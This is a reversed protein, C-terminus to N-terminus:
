LQESRDCEFAQQWRPPHSVCHIACKQVIKGWLRELRQVQKNVCFTISTTHLIFLLARSLFEFEAKTRVEACKRKNPQQNRFMAIFTAAEGFECPEFLTWCASQKFCALGKLTNLTHTYQTHLLAAHKIHSQWPKQAYWAETCAPHLNFNLHLMRWQAEFFFCKRWVAIFYSM